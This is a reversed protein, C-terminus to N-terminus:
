RQLFFQALQATSVSGLPLLIAKFIPQGLLSGYAGATTNQIRKRLLKFQSQAADNPQSGPTGPNQMRIWSTKLESVASDRARIASSHLALWLLGIVAAYYGYLGARNWSFVWDDFLQTMSLALVSLVVFPYYLYEAVAATRNGILEIDIFVDLDAKLAPDLNLQQQRAQLVREPYQHRRRGLDIVFLTCLLVADAVAAMLLTLAAFITRDLGRAIDGLGGRVVHPPALSAGYVLFFPLFFLIGWILIIRAIRQTGSANYEYRAWVAAFAEPAQSSGTRSENGLLEILWAAYSIKSATKPTSGIVGLYQAKIADLRPQLTVAIRLLFMFTMCLALLWIFLVPWSSVGETLLLPEPPRLSPTSVLAGRAFYTFAGISVILGLLFIMATITHPQGFWRLGSGSQRLLMGRGPSRLAWVMMAAGGGGILIFLDIWIRRGWAPAEYIPQVTACSSLKWVGCAPDVAGHTYGALLPVLQTRGVEFLQSEDPTKLVAAGGSASPPQLAMLTALFTSTQYTDRFPPTQGQLERRLTLGFGSAILLNRAWQRVLPHALRADVDLTFFPTRPMRDRLAQLLLLKDHADSAVIGVAVIRKGVPLTMLNAGLRRIYDRQDATEPWEIPAASSTGTSDAATAAKSNKGVAPPAGDIGGIFSYFMTTAHNGKCRAVGDMASELLWSARRGYETDWEGMMLIANRKDCLQVNRDLLERVMAHMGEADTPIARLVQQGFAKVQQQVSSAYLVSSTVFPSVLRPLGGVPIDTGPSEQMALYQGSDSPGIVTANCAEPSPPCVSLNRLVLVLRGLWSRHLDPSDISLAGGDVWLVTVTSPASQPKRVSTSSREFAEFPIRVPLDGPLHAIVYGIHANDRPVYGLEGLASVVAYRTRRRSEASGAANSNTVMVSLVSKLRDKPAISSLSSRFQAESIGFRYTEFPAPTAPPEPSPANSRSPRAPAASDPSKLSAADHNFQLLDMENREFRDVASFPDESLAAEVRQLTRLDILLNSPEAPRTLLYAGGGALLAAGAAAIVGILGFLSANSGSNASKSM